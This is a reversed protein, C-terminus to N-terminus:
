ARVYLLVLEGTDEGSNPEVRATRVRNDAGLNLRGSPDDLVVESQPNASRLIDILSQVTM